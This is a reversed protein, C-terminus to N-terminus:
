KSNDKDTGYRQNLVERALTPSLWTRGRAYHDIHAVDPLMAPLVQIGSSGNGIIAVRQGQAFNTGDDTRRTVIPGYRTIM